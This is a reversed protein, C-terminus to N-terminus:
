QHKRKRIFFYALPIVSLSTLVIIVALAANDNAIGNIMNVGNSSLVFSGGSYTLSRGEHAAWALLRTRATAIVYDNSTWFTNKDSSSMTNLKSIASNLKSTCQNETDAYMIYNAVNTANDQGKQGINITHFNSYTSSTTEYAIKFYYYDTNDFNADSLLVWSNGDTSVYMKEDSRAGSRREISLSSIPKSLAEINHIEGIGQGFSFHETNSYTYVYINEAACVVGNINLSNYNAAGSGSTGTIGATKGQAGTLTLTSTAPAIYAVRSVNVSFNYSNGAYTISFQKTGTSGGSPADDYTFQYGDNAFTFDTTTTSAKGSAWSLTVTIDSKAITEGPHYTKTNTVTVNTVSDNIVPVNFTTTMPTTETNLSGTYTVTVTKNGATVSSFGSLEYQSSSLTENPYKVSDTFSATVSVKSTDLENGVYVSGGSYTASLSSVVKDSIDVTNVTITDVWIYKSSNLSISSKSPPLM